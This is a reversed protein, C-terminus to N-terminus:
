LFSDHVRESTSLWKTLMQSKATGHITAKWAGRDMLNGLCSFPTPQGEGHPKGSENILGADGANAHPNKVM